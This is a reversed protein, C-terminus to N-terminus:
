RPCQGTHGSRPARGQWQCASCKYTKQLIKQLTMGSIWYQPRCSGIRFLNSIWYFVGQHIRRAQELPHPIAVFQRGRLYEMHKELDASELKDEWGLTELSKLDSPRVGTLLTPCKATPKPHWLVEQGDKTVRSFWDEPSESVSEKKEKTAPDTSSATADQQQNTDGPKKSSQKSDENKADDSSGTANPNSQANGAPASNTKKEKLNDSGKENMDDKSELLTPRRSERM